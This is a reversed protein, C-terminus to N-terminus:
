RPPGHEIVPWNKRSKQHVFPGQSLNNEWSKLEGRDTDNWRHDMGM